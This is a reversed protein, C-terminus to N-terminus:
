AGPHRIAVILIIIWGSGATGVGHCVHCIFKLKLTPREVIIATIRSRLIVSRRIM